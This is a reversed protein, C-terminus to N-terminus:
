GAGGGGPLGSCEGAEPSGLCQSQLGRPSQCGSGSYRLRPYRPPCLPAGQGRPEQEGGVARSRCVAAPTPPPLPFPLPPPTRPFGMERAPSLSPPLATPSPCGLGSSMPAQIPPGRPVGTPAKSGGGGHLTPRADAEGAGPVDREGEGGEGGRRSCTSVSPQLANAAKPSCIRVKDQLNPGSRLRTAAGGWPRLRRLGVRRGGQAEGERPLRARLRVRAWSGPRPSPTPASAPPTPSRLEGLPRHQLGPTSEGTWAALSGADGVLAQGPGRSLGAEAAGCFEGGVGGESQRTGQSIDTNDRLSQPSPSLSPSLAPPVQYGPGGQPPRHGPLNCFGRQRGRRGGGAPRGRM